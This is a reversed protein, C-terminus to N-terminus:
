PVLSNIYEEVNVWGNGDSDIMADTPDNPNLGNQVEWSDPLGDRDTDTPATGGAITGVNGALGLATENDIIAGRTGYSKLENILYNDVPDRKLSAGAKAIVYDLTDEVPLTPVDPYTTSPADYWTVSGYGGKSLVFPNYAGNKDPDYFNNDAYLHYVTSGSKMVSGSTDPGSVFVSNVIAGDYRTGSDAASDGLIYGAVRWNYVVNNVWQLVGRAKPNRTHNDIYLSRLVSVGDNGVLLGGTSHSHLGQAVISNQLTIKGIVKGSDPNIDFNGDRGWSLSVHDFIMNNGHAISITDKGSTGIRGMRFRIYRVITNNAGSFSTGNGYVVIGDGPATQGAIYQNSKFVLRESIKIVGGVDFVVIRNPQSIAERLSGAGSDNLNTVHVVEGFRGGVAFRGFGMAGPFALTEGDPVPPPQEACPEGRIGAARISLSDINALGNATNATLSLTNVGPELVINAQANQWTTWAGTTPLDLVYSNGGVMLTGPRSATSGNAFRVNVNATVPAGAAVAWRMGAGVANDPNAFGAGMFGAHDSDVPVSRTSCYGDDGEEITLTVAPLEAQDGALSTVLLGSAISYDQDAGLQITLSGDSVPINEAIIDLATNAGASAFVDLGQAISQGEVSVNMARLGAQEHFFEATKLVVTYHGDTVPLEFTFLGYRQSQYLADDETGAVAAAYSDADFLDGGDRTIFAANEASYTIGDRSVYAGDSGINMAYVVHGQVSSSSSSSSTAQSSSAPASSPASSVPQVSSSVAISSVAVSSVAAPASSSSAAPENGVCGALFVGLLPVAARAIFQVNGM